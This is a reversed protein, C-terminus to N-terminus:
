VILELLFLGNVSFNVHRAGDIDTTENVPEDNMRRRAPPPSIMGQIDFSM